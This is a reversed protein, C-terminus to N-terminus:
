TLRLIAMDAPLTHHEDHGCHCTGPADRPIASRCRLERLAQRRARDLQRALELIRLRNEATTQEAAVRRLAALDHEFLEIRDSLLARRQRRLEVKRRDNLRYVRETYRADRGEPGDRLPELRDDHLRFHDGWAHRWPHLLRAGSAHEIPQDRRVNNCYRCSYACNSYM